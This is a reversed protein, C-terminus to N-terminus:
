QKLQISKNIRSLEETGKSVIAIIEYTGARIGSCTNCRPTTYHLEIIEEKGSLLNVQESISLRYSDRSFIGNVQINTDNLDKNSLAKVTIIMQQNSQYIDKDTELSIQVSLPQNESETNYINMLNSQCGVLSIILLVLLIKRM